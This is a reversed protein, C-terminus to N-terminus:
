RRYPNFGWWPGSYPHLCVPEPIPRYLFQFFAKADEILTRFRLGELILESAVQREAPTSVPSLLKEWAQRLHSSNATRYCQREREFHAVDKYYCYQM